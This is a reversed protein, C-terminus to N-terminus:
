AMSGPLCEPAAFDVRTTTTVLLDNASLHSITFPTVIQNLFM